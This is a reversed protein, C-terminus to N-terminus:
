LGSRHDAEKIGLRRRRRGLIHIIWIGGCGEAEWLLFISYHLLEGRARLLNPHDLLGSSFILHPNSNTYEGLMQSVKHKKLEAIEAIIASSFYLTPDLLFVVKCNECRM